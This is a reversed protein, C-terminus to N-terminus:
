RGGRSAAPTPPAGAGRGKTVESVRALRERAAPSTSPLRDRRFTSARSHGASNGHWGRGM